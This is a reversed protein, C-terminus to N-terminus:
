NKACGSTWEISVRLQATSTGCHLLKDNFIVAQGVRVPARILFSEVGHDLLYPRTKGSADVRSGYVFDRSHSGPLLRLSPESDDQLLPMWTKVRQHTKPFQDGRLDWFWRDAHVPGVDSTSNPRVIRWYINPYGLGEEDTMFDGYDLFSTDRLFKELTLALSKPLIRNDKDKFQDFFCASVIAAAKDLVQFNKNLRNNIHSLVAKTTSAFLSAADIVSFGASNSSLAILSIPKKRM